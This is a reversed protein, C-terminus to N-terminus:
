QKGEREARAYAETFEMPIYFNVSLQSVKELSISKRQVNEGRKADAADQAAQKAVICHEAKAADYTYVLYNQEVAVGPRDVYDFKAVIQYWKFDTISIDSEDKAGKYQSWTYEEGTIKGRLYEEASTDKKKLEDIIIRHFDLKKANMVEFGGDFKQESYDRIIDLLQAIGNAYAILKYKTDTKITRIQVIWLERGTAYEIGLRKQNSVVVGKIDGSQIYFMLKAATEQDIYTGADFLKQTRKIEVVEGNDDVMNETYEAIVNEALYRNLMQAKDATRFKLENHRTQVEKEKKM